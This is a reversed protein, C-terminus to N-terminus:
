AVIRGSPPFRLRQQERYPRGRRDELQPYGEEIAKAM